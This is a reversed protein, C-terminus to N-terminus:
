MGRRHVGIRVPTYRVTVELRYLAPLVLDAREATLRIETADGARRGPPQVAVRAAASDLTFFAWLVALALHPYREARSGDLRVTGALSDQVGPQWTFEGVLTRLLAERASTGPALWAHIEYEADVETSSAPRSRGGDVIRVEGDLAHVGGIRQEEATTTWEVEWTLPSSAVERPPHVLATTAIGDLGYLTALLASEPDAYERTVQGRLRYLARREDWWPAEWGTGGLDMDHAVREATATAEAEGWAGGTGDAPRVWCTLRYSATVSM